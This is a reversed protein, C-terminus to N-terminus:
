YTSLTFIHTEFYTNVQVNLSYYGKRNRFHGAMIPGVNRTPCKIRVHTCDIAGIVCPFRAINYFRSKIKNVEEPEQPFKVFDPLRLAM